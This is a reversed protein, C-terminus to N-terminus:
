QEIEKGIDEKPPDQVKEDKSEVKAVEAEKVEGSIDQLGLNRLSATVDEQQQHLTTKLEQFESRLQEVEVNLSKKLESLEDRYNKVQTDLKSRWSQLDQKLGQIRTLLEQRSESLEAIKSNIPITNEKKAPLPAIPPVSPTSDSNAM